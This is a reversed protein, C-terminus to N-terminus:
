FIVHTSRAAAVAGRPEYPVPRARGAGDGGGGRERGPRFEAAARGLSGGRRYSPRAAAPVVRQVAAVFVARDTTSACVRGKSNKRWRRIAAGLMKHCETSICRVRKDRAVRTESASWTRSVGPRVYSTCGESECSDSRWDPSGCGVTSEDTTRSSGRRSTTGLRIPISVRVPAHPHTSVTQLRLLVAVSEPPAKSCVICSPCRAM